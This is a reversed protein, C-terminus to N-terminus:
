HCTFFFREVNASIENPQPQRDGNSDHYTIHSGAHIVVQAVPTGDAAYVTRPERHTETYVTTGGANAAFAFAFHVTDTGYSYMGNPLDVRYDFIETGHVTLGGGSNEVFQGTVMDTVYSTGILDPDFCEPLPGELVLQSVDTFKTVTAGAADAPPATALGIAAILGATVASTTKNM